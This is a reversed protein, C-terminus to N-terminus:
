QTVFDTILVSHINASEKGNATLIDKTIQAFDIKMQEAGQQTEFYAANKGKLAVIMADIILTKVSEINEHTSTSNTAIQASILATKNRGDSNYNTVLKDINVFILTDSTDEPEAEVEVNPAIPPNIVMNFYMGGAFIIVSVVASIIVQKLNM